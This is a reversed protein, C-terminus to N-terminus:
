LPNATKGVYFTMIVFLGMQLGLNLVQTDTEKWINGSFKM